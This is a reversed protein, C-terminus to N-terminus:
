YGSLRCLYLKFSAPPMQLANNKTAPTGATFLLGLSFVTKHLANVFL